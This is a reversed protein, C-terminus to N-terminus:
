LAAQNVANHLDLIYVVALTEPGRLEIGYVLGGLSTIICM